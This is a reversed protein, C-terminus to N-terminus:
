KTEGLRQNIIEIYKESIEIGIYNRNLMKAMKLTTGSGAFPDLVLDNENSWTLIHDRALAEPFVAPHDYANRGVPIYWINSRRSLEPTTFRETGKIRNGKNIVKDKIHTQGATINKHDCIFNMTKPKGKSFIFMYHFVDYYRSETPIRGATEWIMTDYLNFGIEKFYLAQKFSTGSESGRYTQDKVVWVVVGGQKTVRFLEKAVGEFDFSYGDYMRLNDYPPSTITLDISNDLIDKMKELCDGLIVSM